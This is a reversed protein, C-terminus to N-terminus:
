RTVAVEPLLRDELRPYLHVVSREFEERVVGLVKFRPPIPTAMAEVMAEGREVSARLTDELWSLYDRTQEISAGKPDFPGHGPFIAARDASELVALSATWRALDAHPTTPARNLFALDGGFVVGTEMDEVAFDSATHGSLHFFRFRRGGIEEGEGTAVRGPVKVATGRMWDGLIRYLNGAMADGDQRIGAVVGEPAAILGADFVQNGLVHDPHHHTNYVRLVPKGPVKAEIAAKLAEGYRRSPGTDIVVVGERTEVFATNVINGGNAPSFLEPRGFVGWTKSAIERVDLDYALPAASARGAACVACAGAGILVGRRSLGVPM